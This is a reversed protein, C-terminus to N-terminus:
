NKKCAYIARAYEDAVFATSQLEVHLAVAKSTVKQYKEQLELEEVVTTFTSTQLKEHLAAAEAAVKQYKKQLAYAEAKKKKWKKDLRKGDPVAKVEVVRGSCCTTFM